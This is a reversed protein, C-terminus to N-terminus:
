GLIGMIAWGPPLHIDVLRWRLQQRQFIFSVPHGTEDIRTATFRNLSEYRWQIDAFPAPSAAPSYTDPHRTKGIAKRWTGQGQLLASVGAPTVVTDVSAGVLASAGALAVAGFRNSQMDSGAARVVRDSLQAKLNVRLSPFDIHKELQSPSRTAIAQDISRMALWPGAAWLAVLGLLLFLILCLWPGSKRMDTELFDAEAQRLHAADTHILGM